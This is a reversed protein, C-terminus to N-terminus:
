IVLFLLFFESQTEELLLYTSVILGAVATVFLCVFEFSSQHGRYSM